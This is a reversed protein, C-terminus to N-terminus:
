KPIRKAAALQAIRSRIDSARDTPELITTEAAASARALLRATRQRLNVAAEVRELCLKRLDGPYPRFRFKVPDRRWARCADDIAWQPFEGLDDLWDEALAAEVAAPLPDSRYHALLAFVRALLPAREAPAIIRGAEEYLRRLEPVDEIPVSASPEWVELDREYGHTGCIPVKRAPRLLQVVSDRVPVPLAPLASSRFNAVEGM